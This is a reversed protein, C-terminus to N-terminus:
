KATYIASYFLAETMDCAIKLFLRLPWHSFKLLLVALICQFCYYIWTLVKLLLFNRLNSHIKDKEEPVAPSPRHQQTQIKELTLNIGNEPWKAPDALPPLPIGTCGFFIRWFVGFYGFNM